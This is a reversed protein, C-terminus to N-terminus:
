FNYQLMVQARNAHGENDNMDTRTGYLYEAAIRCRSNLAYFINGFMYQGQKYEDAAYYGNKKEVNVVSSGCSLFLRPTLNFQASLQWGWMPM